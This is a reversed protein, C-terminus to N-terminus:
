GAKSGFLMAFPLVCAIAAAAPLSYRLRIAALLLAVFGAGLAVLMMVGYASVAVEGVRFLVPHM